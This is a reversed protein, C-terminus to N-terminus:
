SARPSVDVPQLYTWQGSQVQWISIMPSIADGYADFKYHGTVGDNLTGHAVADLVEARTPASGGNANVVRQIAEILILACDYAPFTYDAITKDQPYADKYAKFAAAAAPDKSHTADVLNLTGFTAAASITADINCSSDNTAGEIVLFFGFDNKMQVRAQCADASGYGLAYIAQAGMAKAKALFGTFKTTGWPLDERWVLSGGLGALEDSFHDLYLSGDDGLENFAAVRKINLSAAWRAMATGQKYEPATIRFFNNPRTARVARIGATCYAPPLTLCVDTSSPSVMALNELAARPIQDRIVYSNFPGIMGMVRPDAIMRKVNQVGLSANPFLGLSDDLPLYSLRFAGIQPHQAIALKIARELSGVNAPQGSTPLDSAIVITPPAPNSGTECASALVVIVALM